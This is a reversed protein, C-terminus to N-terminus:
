FDVGIKYTFMQECVSKNVMKGSGLFFIGSFAGKKGWNERNEPFNAFM